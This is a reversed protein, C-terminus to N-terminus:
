TAAKGGAYKSFPLAPSSRPQRRERSAPMFRRWSRQHDVNLSWGDCVIHHATLVLAHSIPSLKFLRARIPPGEVLDFPTSADTRLYVHLVEEAPGDCGAADVM